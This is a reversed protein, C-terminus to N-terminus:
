MDKLVTGLQKPARMRDVHMSLAPKTISLRMDRPEKGEREREREVYVNSKAVNMIKQSQHQSAYNIAEALRREEGLSVSM